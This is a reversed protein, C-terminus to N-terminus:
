RLDNQGQFNPFNIVEEVTGFRQALVKYKNREFFDPNDKYNAIATENYM